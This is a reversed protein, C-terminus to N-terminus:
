SAGSKRQGRVCGGIGMTKGNALTLGSLILSVGPNHKLILDNANGDITLADRGSGTITLDDVAVALHGSTLTITNCTLGTLDIEDGTVANDVAERLSGPGSDGCHNVATVQAPRTAVNTKSAAPYPRQRNAQGVRSRDPHAPQHRPGPQNQQWRQAPSMLYTATSGVPQSVSAGLGVVVCSAITSLRPVFLSNKLAYTM